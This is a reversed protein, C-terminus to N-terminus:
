QSGVELLVTLFEETMARGWITFCLKNVGIASESGGRLLIFNTLKRCLEEREERKLEKDDALRYSNWVLEKTHLHKQTYDIYWDLRELGKGNNM